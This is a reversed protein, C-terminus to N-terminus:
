HLYFKDILSRAKENIKNKKKNNYFTAARASGYINAVYFGSALIGYIWGGLSSIGGKKFRTYSQYGAGGVFVISFLGDVYDKAYMRGTGPVIASMIGALVPSKLRLNKGEQLIPGYSNPNSKNDVWNQYALDYNGQLMLNETNFRQLEDKAFLNKKADIFLNADSHQKNLMLAVIYETAVGKSDISFHRARSLATELKNDLRYAKLLARALTADKPYEFLLREYEESALSYLEQDMLFEAFRVKQAVDKSVEQQCFSSLHSILILFLTTVFTTTRKGVFSMKNSKTLYNLDINM